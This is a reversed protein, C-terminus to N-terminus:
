FQHVLMTIPYCHGMHDGIPSENSKPTRGEQQGPPRLNGGRVRSTRPVWGM